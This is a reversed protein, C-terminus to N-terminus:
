ERPGKEPQGDMDVLMSSMEHVQLTRPMGDIEHARPRPEIYGEGEYELVVDEDEIDQEEHHYYVEVEIGPRVLLGAIIGGKIFVQVRGAYPVGQSSVRADVMDAVDHACGATCPSSDNGAIHGVFCESVAEWLHGRTVTIEAAENAEGIAM